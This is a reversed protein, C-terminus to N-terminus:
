GSFTAPHPIRGALIAGAIAHDEVTDVDICAEPRDLLVPAATVGIRVGARALAGEIRMARVLYGLLLVPGFARAIARVKKRESEVRQWFRVASLAAPRALFFLNAGSYAGGRFKLWTRRADPYARAFVARPVLGVAVDTGRTRAGAIFTSLTAADLLVNDATTVLFPWADGHTELAAAVAASVSDGGALVGIRTDSAMWATGPHALLREPTQALVITRAVQPHDALVRAVRSLMPEGAVAILAKDEVGFHAALPDAGTRRGAVLLATLRPKHDTEM